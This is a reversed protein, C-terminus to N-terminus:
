KRSGSFAGLCCACRLVRGYSSSVGLEEYSIMAGDFGLYRSSGDPLCQRTGLTFGHLNQCLRSLPRRCPTPDPGFNQALKTGHLNKSRIPVSQFRPSYPATIFANKPTKNPVHPFARLWLFLGACRAYGGSRGPQHRNDGFASDCCGPSKGGLGIDVISATSPRGREQYTRQSLHNAHCSIM